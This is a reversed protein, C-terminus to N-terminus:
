VSASSDEMGWDVGIPEGSGTMGPTTGRGSSKGPVQRKRSRHPYATSAHPVVTTSSRGVRSGSSSGDPGAAPHARHRRWSWSTRAPAPDAPSATATTAGDRAGSRGGARETCPRALRNGVREPTRWRTVPPTSATSPTERSMGAPVVRPSTPSLPEPLDVSARSTTRMTSGVAPETITSPVSTM